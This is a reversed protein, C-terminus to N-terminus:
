SRRCAARGRIRHQRQRAMGPHMERRERDGIRLALVPPQGLRAEGHPRQHLELARDLVAVPGPTAAKVTTRSSRPAIASPRMWISAWRVSSVTHCGRQSVCRLPASPSTSRTTAHASTASAAARKTRNVPRCPALGRLEALGDREIAPLHLNNELSANAAINGSIAIGRRGNM